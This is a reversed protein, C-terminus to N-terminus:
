ALTYYGRKVRKFYQRGGKDVEHDALVVGISTWRRRVKHQASETALMGEIDAVSFGSRRNGLSLAFGKRMISRIVDPLPATEMYEREDM